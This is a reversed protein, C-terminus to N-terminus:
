KGRRLEAQVAILREEIRTLLERDSQRHEKLARIEAEAAAMRQPLVVFSGLLTSLAVAVGLVWGVTKQAKDSM